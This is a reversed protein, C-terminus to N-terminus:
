ILTSIDVIEKEVIGYVMNNQAPKICYSGTFTGFAPLICHSEGFYFCPVYVRQRGRASLKVAPHIHGTIPYHNSDASDSEDHMFRAAGKPSGIQIVTEVPSFDVGLDLGSTFVVAKLIGEHLLTEVWDRVKRYSGGSLSFNGM